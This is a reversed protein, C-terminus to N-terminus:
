VISHKSIQNKIYILQKLFFERMYNTQMRKKEKENLYKRKILGSKKGQKM